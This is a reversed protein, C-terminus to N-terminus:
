KKEKRKRVVWIVLLVIGVVVAGFLFAYLGVTLVMEHLVDIITKIPNM